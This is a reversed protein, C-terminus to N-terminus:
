YPKTIQSTRLWRELNAKAIGLVGSPDARIHRAVVDNCLLREPHRLEHVAFTIRDRM